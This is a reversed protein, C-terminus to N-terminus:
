RHAEGCVHREGGGDRETITITIITIAITIISTIIIILTGAKM